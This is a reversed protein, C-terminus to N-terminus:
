LELLLILKKEFQITGVVFLYQKFQIFRVWTSLIRKLISFFEGNQEARVRQSTKKLIADKIQARSATCLRLVSRMSPM